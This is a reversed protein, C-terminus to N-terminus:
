RPGSAPPPSPPAPPPPAGVVGPMAPVGLKGQLQRLKELDVKGVVNVIVFEMPESVVLAMGGDDPRGNDDHMYLDVHEGNSQVSMMKKWGPAQLQKRVGALDGAAYMGPKDFSFVRIYVGKVGQLADNMDQKAGSPGGMFQSASKLMDGDLSIDVSEKAKEALGPFEPLQLRGAQAFAALPTALLVLAARALPKM